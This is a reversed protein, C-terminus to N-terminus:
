RPTATLFSTAIGRNGYYTWGVGGAEYWWLDDNTDFGAVYLRDGVAAASITELSGNAYAWTQWGNGSGVIFENTWVRHLADLAVTFIRGSGTAVRAADALQGPATYEPGWTTGSIRSMTIRPLRALSLELRTICVYLAGDSGVTATPGGRAEGFGSIDHQLFTFGSGPVYKGVRIGRSSIEINYDVSQMAIYISGDPTVRVIPRIYTTGSTGVRYGQTVLIWGSFGGDAKYSNLWVDTGVASGGAVIWVTGDPGLSIDASYSTFSAGTAPIWGLWSQTASQLVNIWVGGFPDIGAIYVDGQPNQVSAVSTVTDSGDGRDALVGGANTLEPFGFSFSRTAGSADLFVATPVTQAALIRTWCCLALIWVPVRPRVTLLLPMKTKLKSDCALVV